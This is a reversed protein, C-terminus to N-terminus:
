YNEFYEEFIDTLCSKNVQLVKELGYEDISKRCVQASGGLVIQLFFDFM